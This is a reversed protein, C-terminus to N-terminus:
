FGNVLWNNPNKKGLAECLANITNKRMIILEDDQRNFEENQKKIIDAVFTWAILLFFPAALLIAILSVFVDSIWRLKEPLVACAYIQITLIVKYVPEDIFKKFVFSLFNM